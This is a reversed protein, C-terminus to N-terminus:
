FGSFRCSELFRRILEEDMSDLLGALAELDGVSTNSLLMTDDYSPMPTGNLGTRLVRTVETLDRGVNRKTAVLDEVGFTGAARERKELLGESPLVM